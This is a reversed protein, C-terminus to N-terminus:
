SLPRRTFTRTAKDFFQLQVRDPAINLGTTVIRTLEVKDDLNREAKDRVARAMTEMAAGENALIGDALSIVNPDTALRTALWNLLLYQQRDYFYGDGSNDLDLWGRKVQANWFAEERMNWRISQPVIVLHEVPNDLGGIRVRDNPDAPQDVAGIAPIGQVLYRDFHQLEHLAAPLHIANSHPIQIEFVNSFCRMSMGATAASPMHEVDITVGSQAEIEDM